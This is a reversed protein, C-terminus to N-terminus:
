EHHAPKLIKALQQRIRYWKVSLHNPSIGLMGAIESVGYGDLHLLAIARDVDSLRRLAHHLAQIDEKEFAAPTTATGTEPIVDTFVYPVRKRRSTFVTNLCVRYLWTSFQADGRFSNIGKWSQLLIEQYLDKKEEADAAYFSVVKFIIGQNERILKLFTKEEM